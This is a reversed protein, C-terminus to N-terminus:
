RATSRRGSRGTRDRAWAVFEPLGGGRDLAIFEDALRGIELDTLGFARLESRAENALIRASEGHTRLLGAADAVSGPREYAFSRPIM